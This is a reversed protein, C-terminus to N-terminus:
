NLAFSQSAICRGNLWVELQHQGPYHKRTTLDVFAQQKNLQLPQGQWQPRAWQFVKYSLQGNKKLYGIRYELRLPGAPAEGTLTLQFQLPQTASATTSILSLQAQLDVPMIGFLQLAQPNAQKLLGRLAHRVIWHTAHSHNLWREALQLVLQPHDKSIDNLHNAVSRQVYAEPDAKLRELVPMLPTPDQQYPKLALGWPLRPRAGESALRRQHLDDSEAWQLLQPLVLEPYRLLFPRIAFESSSYRTLEGLAQISLEPQELGYAEVFDPFVLGQLGSFQVAVQQVIPLATAFSQPLHLALATSIRRMRQKLELESWDDALVYTSFASLDFAPHQQQCLLGLQRIFSPSYCDKLAAAM